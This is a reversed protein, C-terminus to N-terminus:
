FPWVLAWNPGRFVTGLVTLATIAIVFGTFGVCWMRRSRHFWQGVGGPATELYPLAMLGLIIVAPAIVGGLLASYHVLEQLGLFYWPAKAPNPTTTPDAMEELPADFFFSIAMCVATVVLALLLERTLLHPWSPVLDEPPDDRVLTEGGVLAMLGYTKGTPSSTPEPPPDTPAPLEPASLGGDKRIRWVHVAVLIFIFAPLIACHLVYFRLLTGEGIENGGLLLFKIEEGIVPVYGAIASGVTIAWYALQDWPLLYGTFSLGLTLVFLFVGIVWNFRRPGKHGGTYFVRCMHLFVVLVMGHAAWRHLNRMLRGFPVVHELDQMSRYAVDPHPSYYLMLLIGTVTLLMLLVASIVGLGFTYSFRLSSRKAFAPHIHLFLNSVVALSREKSSRPWGYRFISRWIDRM